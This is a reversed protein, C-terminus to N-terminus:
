AIASQGQKKGTGMEKLRKKRGFVKEASKAGWMSSESWFSSFGPFLKEDSAFFLFNQNSDHRQITEPFFSILFSKCLVMFIHMMSRRRVSRIFLKKCVNIRMIQAKITITSGCESFCMCLTRWFAKEKGDRGALRRTRRHQHLSFKWPRLFRCLIEVM